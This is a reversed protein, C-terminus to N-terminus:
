FLHYINRYFAVFSFLQIKGTSQSIALVATYWLLVVSSTTSKLHLRPECKKYNTKITMVERSVMRVVVTKKVISYVNIVYKIFLDTTSSVLSKMFRTKNNICNMIVLMLKDFVLINVLNVPLFPLLLLLILPLRMCAGFDFWNSIFSTSVMVLALTMITLFSLKVLGEQSSPNQRFGTPLCLSVFPFEEEMLIGWRRWWPFSIYRRRWRHHWYRNRLEGTFCFHSFYSSICKRTHNIASNLTTANHHYTATCINNNDKLDKHAMSSDSNSADDKTISLVKCNCHQVEMTIPNPKFHFHCSESTM